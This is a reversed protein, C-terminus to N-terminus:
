KSILALSNMNQKHLFGSPRPAMSGIIGNACFNGFYSFSGRQFLHDEFFYGYMQKMPCILFHMRIKVNFKLLHFNQEFFDQREGEAFGLLVVPETSLKLDSLWRSPCIAKSWYREAMCLYVQGGHMSVPM